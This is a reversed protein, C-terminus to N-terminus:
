KLQKQVPNRKLSAFFKIADIEFYNLIKLITHSNWYVGSNIIQYYGFRSMEVEKCLEKISVGKKERLVELRIGVKSLFEKHAPKVQLPPKYEKKKPSTRETLNNTTEMEFIQCLPLFHVNFHVSNTSLIFYLQIYKDM